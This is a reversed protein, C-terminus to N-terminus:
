CGDPVFVFVVEQYAVAQGRTAADGDLEMSVIEKAIFGLNNYFQAAEVTSELYLPAKRLLSQEIGWKVLM